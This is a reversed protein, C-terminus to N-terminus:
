HQSGRGTSMFCGVITDLRPSWDTLMELLEQQELPLLPRVLQANCSM